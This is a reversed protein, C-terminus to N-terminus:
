DGFLEELYNTPERKRTTHVNNIDYQIPQKCYGHVYVGASRQYGPVWIKGQAKCDVESMKIYADITRMQKAM